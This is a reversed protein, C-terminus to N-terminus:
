SRPKAEKDSEQDSSKPLMKVLDIGTTEKLMELAKAIQIPVNGAFRAITGDSGGNGADIMVVRDIEGLPKSAAEVIQPLREILDRAVAIQVGTTGYRNLAEVLQQQGEAQALLQAKEGAAAAEAKKQVIGAEAEGVEKIKRAEGEASKTIAQRQAEAPQIITADLEKRRREIEKEQVEIEVEKRRLDIRAEEASVEQRAVASAKPGAQATRADAEAVEAKYQLQLVNSDRQAKAIEAAQQAKFVEQERQALATQVIAERRAQAMSKQGLADMYGLETEELNKHEDLVHQITFADIGIGLRDLDAAAEQSTKSALAERDANIEEVTLTALISRLHGILTEQVQTKMQEIPMGLYREAAHQIADDDSKVKILAVAKVTVPVFLKTYAGSIDLDIQIQSLDVYGGFSEIPRMVWATGQRVIRTSARGIIVAARNPPVQVLQSRFIIAFWFLLRFLM